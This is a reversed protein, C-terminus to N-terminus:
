AYPAPMLSLREGSRMATSSRAIHPAKATKGALAAVKSQQLRIAPSALPAAPIGDRRFVGEVQVDVVQALNNAQVQLSVAAAAAEEILVANQQTVQDMQAIAQNVQEIGISQEQSACTIEGMINTVRRVSAVVEEMTSGAEGVLKSGADVKEVSVSILTKIEKAAAASRQALNRVETAVVAFGRGQEGARAAEVAANLALINTQFAIGDIVGIIDVIKKSSANISAMTAVVQSVVAGGKVAVESAFTAMQNAQRANDANQKVTTTLEEMSAATEELSSAQEETRAALDSNGQAIGASAAAVEEAGQRVTSVVGAMKNRVENLAAVIESVEDNGHEAMACELNLKAMAHAQSAALTFRVKMSRLLLTVFLVAVTIVLSCGVLLWTATSQLNANRERFATAADKRVIDVLKSIAAVTATGAPTLVQARLATAQETKGESMLDLWHMRATAYKKFNEQLNELLARGADSIPQESFLQIHREFDDYHQKDSKILQQRKESDTLALFQAVGWRLAWLSSNADALYSAALTEAKYARENSSQSANSQWLTLVGSMVLASVLGICLLQIKSAIKM